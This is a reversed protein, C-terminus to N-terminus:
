FTPQLQVYQLLWYDQKPVNAREDHDLVDCFISHLNSRYNSQQKKIIFFVTLLLYYSSDKTAARRSASSPGRM